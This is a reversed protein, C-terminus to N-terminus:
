KFSEIFLAVEILNVPNTYSFGYTENVYDPNKVYLSTFTNMTKLKADEINKSLKRNKELNKKLTEKLKENLRSM